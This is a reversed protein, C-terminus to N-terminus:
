PTQKLPAQLLKSLPIVAQGLESQQGQQIQHIFSVSLTRESLISFLQQKTALFDYSAFTNTLNTDQNMNQSVPTPPSSSFSHTEKLNLNYAVSINAAISM